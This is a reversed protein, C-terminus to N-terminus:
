GIWERKSTENFGDTPILPYLNELIEDVKINNIAIIKSGKELQNINKGYNQTIILNEDILKVTIPLFSRSLGLKIMTWKPLEISTHGENTLGIVYRLKEYFALKSQS